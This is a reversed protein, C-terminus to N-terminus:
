YPATMVEGCTSRSFTTELQGGCEALCEFYAGRLEVDVDLVGDGFADGGPALEAGVWGGHIGAAGFGEGGPQGGPLPIGEAGIGGGAADGADLAEGLGDLEPQVGVGGGGHGTGFMGAALDDAILLAAHALGGDGAADSLGIGFVAFLQMDHARGLLHGLGAHRGLELFEGAEPLPNEQDVEIRLAVEGFLEPM